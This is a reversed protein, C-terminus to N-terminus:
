LYFKLINTTYINQRNVDWFSKKSIVKGEIIQTSFQVQDSLPVEYMMEQAFSTTAMILCFMSTLLTTKLTTKKM